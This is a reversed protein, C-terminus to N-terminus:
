EEATEENSRWLRKSIRRRVKPRDESETSYLAKQVSGAIDISNLKETLGSERTVQRVKPHQLLAIYQGGDILKRIEPDSRLETMAPSTLVEALEADAEAIEYPASGDRTSILLGVIAAKGQQVFPDIKALLSALADNDMAQRWHALWGQDIEAGEEATVNEGFQEMEMVTGTLRFGTALLWILFAAPVLSVLAGIGGLFGRHKGLVPRLLFGLILKHALIYTLLGAAISVILVVRPREFFQPANLYTFWAALAAIGLAVCAFVLRLVGRVFAFGAIIAVLILALTTFSVPFPLLGNLLDSSDSM